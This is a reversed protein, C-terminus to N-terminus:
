APSFLKSFLDGADASRCKLAFGLAIRESRDSANFDADQSACIRVADANGRKAADSNQWKGNKFEAHVSREFTYEAAESM